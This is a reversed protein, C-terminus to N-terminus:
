HCEVSKIGSAKLSACLTEVEKLAVRANVKAENAQAEAPAVGARIRADISQEQLQRIEARMGSQAIEYGLGMGAALLAVVAIYVGLRDHVTAAGGQAITGKNDAM